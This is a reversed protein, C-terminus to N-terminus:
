PQFCYTVRLYEVSYVDENERIIKWLGNEPTRGSYVKGYGADVLVKLSPTIATEFNKKIDALAQEATLDTIRM